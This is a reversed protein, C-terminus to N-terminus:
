WALITGEFALNGQPVVDIKLGNMKEEYINAPLGVV